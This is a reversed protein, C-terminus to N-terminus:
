RSQFNAFTHSSRSSVRSPASPVQVFLTAAASEQVVGAVAVLGESVFDSREKLTVRLCLIEHFSGGEFEHGAFNGFLLVARAARTIIGAVKSTLGDRVVHHEGFQAAPSHADNIPGFVQVQASMYRQFKQGFIGAIGRCELPEPAFPAGRGAQVMRIDAGNVVDPFM